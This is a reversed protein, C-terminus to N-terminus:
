GRAEAVSQEIAFAETYGTLTSVQDRGNVILLTPTQYIQIDRTISGFSGVQKALAYHVAVRHGLKHAVAQVQGRVAVDDSAHPNWFLVLVTKGHKLEAAVAEQMAPASASTGTGVPPAPKAPATHTAHPVSTASSGHTAPRAASAHKASTSPDATSARKASSGPHATSAGGAHTGPHATSARGAHTGSAQGTHSGAAAHHATLPAGSSKAASAHVARSASASAAGLGTSSASPSSSESGPRHLLAFWLLAFLVCAGLAVQFPRSLQTM